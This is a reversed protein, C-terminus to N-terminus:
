NIIITHTNDPINFVKDVYCPWDDLKFCLEKQKCNEKIKDLLEFAIKNCSYTYNIICPDNDNFLEISKEIVKDKKFDLKLISVTNIINNNKDLFKFIGKMIWSRGKKYM